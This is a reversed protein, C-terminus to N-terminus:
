VAIYMLVLQSMYRAAGVQLIIVCLLFDATKTRLIQFEVIEPLFKAVGLM